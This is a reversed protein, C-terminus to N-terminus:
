SEFFHLQVSIFHSRPGSLSLAAPAHFLLSGRENVVFCPGFVSLLSVVWQHYVMGLLSVICEDRSKYPPPPFFTLLFRKIPGYWGIIWIWCNLVAKCCESRFRLSAGESLPTSCQSYLAACEVPAM